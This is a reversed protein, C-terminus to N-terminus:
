IHHLSSLLEIWVRHIQFFFLCHTRFPSVWEGSNGGLIESTVKSISKRMNLRSSENGSNLNKQLLQFLSCSFSGAFVELFGDTDAALAQLAKQAETVKLGARSAVDGVTVRRGCEDVADMARKRVDTPLKDSEVLGGPKIADSVKDISAARVATIGRGTCSRRTIPFQMPKIEQFSYRYVPCRFRILSKRSSVDARAIRPSVFLCASM